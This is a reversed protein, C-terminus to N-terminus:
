IDHLIIGRPTKGSSQVGLWRKVMYQNHWYGLIDIISLQLKTKLPMITIFNNQKNKIIEDTGRTPSDFFIYYSM